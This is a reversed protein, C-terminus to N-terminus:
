HQWAICRSFSCQSRCCFHMSCMTASQPRIEVVALVATALLMGANADPKTVKEYTFYMGENKQEGKRKAYCRLGRLPRSQRPRVISGPQRCHGRVQSGLQMDSPEWCLTTNFLCDPNTSNTLNGTRLCRTQLARSSSLANMTRIFSQYM